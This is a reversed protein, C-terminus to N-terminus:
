AYVHIKYLRTSITKGKESFEVFSYLDFYRRMITFSPRSYKSCSFSICAHHFVSHAYKHM